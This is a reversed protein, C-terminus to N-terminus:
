GKSGVGMVSPQVLKEAAASGAGDADREGEPRLVTIDLDGAELVAKTRQWAVGFKGSNIRVAHCSGVEEGSARLEAIQRALDKLANRTNEM